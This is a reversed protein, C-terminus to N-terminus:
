KKAKDKKTAKDDVVAKKAAKPPQKDQISSRVMVLGNDAGPVAGEVFLLNKEVDVKVVRVNLITTKDVGMHGPM